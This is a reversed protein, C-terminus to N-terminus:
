GPQVDKLWAQIKADMQDRVQRFKNLKAEDGGEFAPPDDFPWYMREGMGPFIRPCSEQADHCVVIVFHAPLKGLYEKVDKSRLADTEVGAEKLVQITLPNVGKPATGASYVNFRDGARSRMLAEGM